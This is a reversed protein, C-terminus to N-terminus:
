PRGRPGRRRRGRRRPLRRPPLAGEPRRAARCWWRSRPWWDAITRASSNDLSRISRIVLPGRVFVNDIPVGLPGFRVPWTAPYFPGPALGAERVLWDINGSWAAANFDGAVVVPGEMDAITEKLTLTEEEAFEDFYPKVMHVAALNIRQGGVVTTATMLRNSWVSSMSQMRVGELPTRSLMVLDCTPVDECGARYPFRTALQALHSDIPTAEMLFVVDADSGTLFDAIEAGRTNPNLLNFSLLKLLPKSAEAAM